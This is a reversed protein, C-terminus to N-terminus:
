YGSLLTIRFTNHPKAEMSFLCLTTDHLILGILVIVFDFRAEKAKVDEAFKLPQLVVMKVVQWTVTTM